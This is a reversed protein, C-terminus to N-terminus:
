SVSTAPPAHLGARPVEDHLRELRVDTSSVRRLTSSFSSHAQVERLVAAEEEFLRRLVEGLHAPRQERELLLEGVGLGDVEIKRM